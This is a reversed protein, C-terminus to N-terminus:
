QFVSFATPDDVGRGGRILWLGIHIQPIATMMDSVFYRMGEAAQILLKVVFSILGFRAKPNGGGFRAFLGGIM